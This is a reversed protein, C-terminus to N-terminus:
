SKDKNGLDKPLFGSGIFLVLTILGPLVHWLTEGDLFVGSGIFIMYLLAVWEPAIGIDRYRRMLAFSLLLLLVLSLLFWVLVLPLVALAELGDGLRLLVSFWVSFGLIIFFIVWLVNWAYERRSITGNFMDKRKFLRKFANFGKYDSM